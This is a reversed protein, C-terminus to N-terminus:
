YFLEDIRPLPYKNNPTVKNLHRYNICMRLTGDKKKVFLFPSGWPSISPQIFGKDLLYKFHLKFEKLQALATRYPPISIQKTNPDLNVGFDIEREPSIGALDELFVQQFENEISM